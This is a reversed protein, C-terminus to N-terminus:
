RTVVPKRLDRHTLDPRAFTVLGDAIAAAVTPARHRGAASGVAVRYIGARRDAARARLEAVTTAILGPIGPTTMVARRIQHADATLGRAVPSVHAAVLPRLDLVLDADPPPGHLFGFSTILIRRPM